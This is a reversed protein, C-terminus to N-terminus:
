HTRGYYDCETYVRYNIPVLAYQVNEPTGFPIVAVKDGAKASQPPIIKSGSYTIAVGDVKCSNAGTMNGTRGTGSIKQIIGWRQHEEGVLPYAYFLDGKCIPYVSVPINFIGADVNLETGLIKFTVPNPEANTAQVIHLGDLVPDRQGGGRLMSLADVNGLLGGAM